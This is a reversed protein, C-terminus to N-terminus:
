YGYRNSPSKKTAFYLLYQLKTAIIYLVVTIEKSIIVKCPEAEAPSKIKACLYYNASRNPSHYLIYM